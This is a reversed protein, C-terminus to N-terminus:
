CSGVRGGFVDGLWLEGFPRYFFKGSRGEAKLGFLLLSVLLSGALYFVFGPYSELGLTGAAIGFLSATLNRINSTVQTNHQVSSAVIPNIQLEREDATAM